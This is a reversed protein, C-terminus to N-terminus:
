NKLYNGFSKTCLCNYITMPQLFMHLHMIWNFRSKYIHSDSAKTVFTKRTDNKNVLRRKADM